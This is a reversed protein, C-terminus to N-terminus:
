RYTVAYNFLNLIYTLLYSFDICNFRIRLASTEVGVLGILSNSTTNQGVAKKIPFFDGM